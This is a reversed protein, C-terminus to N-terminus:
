TSMYLFDMNTLGAMAANEVGRYSNDDEVRKYRQEEELQGVPLNHPSLDCYGKSFFTVPVMTRFTDWWEKQSATRDVEWCIPGIGHRRQDSDCMSWSAWDDTPAAVAIQHGCHESGIMMAALRYRRGGVRIRRPPRHAENTGHAGRRFRFMLVHPESDSTPQSLLQHATGRQDLVPMSEMSHAMGDDDVMYRAIPLGIQSALICIQSAGNQGELEPIQDLPDGVAYENWLAARLKEAAEPSELAKQALPRLHSPLHSVVHERMRNNLLLVFCVSAWWCIGSNELRQPVGMRNGMISPFTATSMRKRFEDAHPEYTINGRSSNVCGGADILGYRQILRNLSAGGNAMRLHRTPLDRDLVSYWADRFCGYEDVSPDCVHTVRIGLRKDKCTTFDLSSLVGGSNRLPLKNSFETTCESMKIKELRIEVMLWMYFFFLRKHGSSPVRRAPWMDADSCNAGYM